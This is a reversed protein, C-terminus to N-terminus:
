MIFIIIVPAGPHSLQNLMWIKIEAWTLIECNTPDLEVDPEPSLTSGAQSDRDGESEAEGGGM